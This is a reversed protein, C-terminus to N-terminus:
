RTSVAKSRTMLSGPFPLSEMMQNRSQLSVIECTDLISQVRVDFGFRVRLKFM